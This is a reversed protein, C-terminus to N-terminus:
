GGPRLDLIGLQALIGLEDFNNWGELLKGNQARAFGMGRVRVPRNTAAFGLGGGQHTATGSWRIAVIDGEAVIDEIQVKLDPFAERYATHFRKFGAPGHLDAPGLGHIVADPALLEDIASARGKNWVEEFWRRVLAKNEASM